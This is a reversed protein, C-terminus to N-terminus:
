KTTPAILLELQNNIPPKLPLGGQDWAFRKRQLVESTMPLLFLHFLNNFALPFKQKLTLWLYPAHYSISLQNPSVDAVVTTALLNEVKNSYFAGERIIFPCVFEFGLEM